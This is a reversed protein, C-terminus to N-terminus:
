KLEKRVIKGNPSEETFIEAQFHYVRCSNDLWRDPTLGAKACTQELFTTADWGWEVAVQPLLLGRYSGREIILGDTGIRVLGVLEKRDKVKYEEPVTLISVEVVIKDLESRHLSSFRPDHCAAEAARVLAVGLPYIPEPYGICGRLDRAPYTELTVFVGRKELFSGPLDLDGGGDGRVEVEVAHRAVRVATQGEGDKM